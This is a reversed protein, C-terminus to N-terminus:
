DLPSDPRIGFLGCEKYTISTAADFKQIRQNKGDYAYTAILTDPSGMGDDANVQTLRNWADYQYHLKVTPDSGSPGSTMNGASDYVPTVWVDAGENAIGRIENANNVTRQQSV